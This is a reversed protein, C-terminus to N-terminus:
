GTYSFASSYPFWFKHIIILPYLLINGSLFAESTIIYCTFVLTKLIIELTVNKVTLWYLNNLRFTTTTQIYFFLSFWHKCILKLTLFFVFIFNTFYIFFQIINGSWYPYILAVRWIKEWVSTRLKKFEVIQGKSQMTNYRRQIDKYVQIIFDFM